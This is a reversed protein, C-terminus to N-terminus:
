DDRKETGGVGATRWSKWPGVSEYRAAMFGLDKPLEPFLAHHLLRTDHLYNRMKIKMRDLHWFTDYTFNQGIKPVPSDAVAAVWRWAELEEGASRWYSRDPRRLDVFPCCLAEEPGPGWGVCTIQGWGTEIDGSLYAARDLVDGKYQWLDSLTPELLLRRRRHRLEPFEAEREAKMFDGVGVTFWKWQKIVFAPHYVPLLKVGPMIFRATQTHGRSRGIEASGTFAWLATGGMPVIVTPQAAELEERLRDLHWSHEPRLYGDRGLPMLAYSPWARSEERGSCWNGVFNAPLQESFVNGVWHEGRELNSARLMANLVHGTPGNFPRRPGRVPNVEDDGPAEGVFALKCPTRAPQDCPVHPGPSQPKM